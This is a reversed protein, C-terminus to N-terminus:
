ARRLFIWKVWEVLFLSMRLFNQSPEFSLTMEVAKVLISVCLLVDPPFVIAESKHSAVESMDLIPHAIIM